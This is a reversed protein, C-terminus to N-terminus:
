RQAHVIPRRQRAKVAETEVRKWGASEGTSLRTIVMLVAVPLVVGILIEPVKGLGRPPEPFVFTAVIGVVFCVSATVWVAAPGVSRNLLGWVTPALLPTVMLSTIAIIVQEAGGLLPVALALGVLVGGLLLSFGRGVWLLERDSPGSRLKAYIDETLVAAFVNLQSSVMSATASFMAALMLGVMGAPLV